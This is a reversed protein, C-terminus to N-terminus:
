LTLDQSLMNFCEALEVDTELVKNLRGITQSVTSYHGVNFALAIDALKAGGIQQCLKMAMWREVCKQGKGRKAWTLAEVSIGFHNSVGAIIATIDVPRAIGLKDVEHGISLTQKLAQEKFDDDGLVSRTHTQAYFEHTPEDVGSEVYARYRAYKHHVSHLEYLKDRTLWPPASATNIYAPYSSWFYDELKDVLPLKTEIPNRHIYRSVPLFYSNAEVLIAKYRGRFLPGDTKKRRNYRQTYVGNIHRMARGLNAEPTRVLLHYHNTMLCYAHVELGFRKNAESLCALFDEYYHSNHFIPQRGSGRNMVHYCAGKFEIRLPRTM